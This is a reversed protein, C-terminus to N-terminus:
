NQPIIVEITADSTAEPTGHILTVGPLSYDGATSGDVSSGAPWSALYFDNGCQVSINKCTTNKAEATVLNAFECAGKASGSIPEFMAVNNMVSPSCHITCTCNELAKPPTLEVKLKWVMAPPAPTQTNPITPPSVYKQQVFAVGYLKGESSGIKVRSAVYMLGPTDNWNAVGVDTKGTEVRVDCQDDKKVGQAQFVVLNADSKLGNANSTGCNALTYLLETRAQDQERLGVIRMEIPITDATSTVPKLTTRCGASAFVLGLAFVLKGWKSKSTIM